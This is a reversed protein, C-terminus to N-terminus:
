DPRYGQVALNEEAVVDHDYLVMVPMGMAALQLAAQRGIAGVGIVLASCAALREPPVLARQRIDRDPHVLPNM